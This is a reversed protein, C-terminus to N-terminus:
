DPYKKYVNPPIKMLTSRLEILMPRTITSVDINGLIDELLRFVSKVEMQTKETWGSQKEATYASIMHSLQKGRKTLSSSKRTDPMVSEVLQKAMDGALLGTRLMAYAQQAKLELANAAFKATSIDSTRLSRKIETSPFYSLLDSPVDLRFYYVGNRLFIHERFSSLGQQLPRM